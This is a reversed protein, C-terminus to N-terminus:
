TALNNGFTNQHLSDNGGPNSSLDLVNNLGRNSVDGFDGLHGQKFCGLHATGIIIKNFSKVRIGMVIDDAEHNIILVLIVGVPNWLNLNSTSM